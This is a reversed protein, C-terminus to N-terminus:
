AEGLKYKVRARLDREFHKWFIDETQVFIEDEIIIQAKDGILLLQETIHLRGPGNRKFVTKRGNFKSKAVFAGPFDQGRMSAGTASQKPTGKFWSAPMDNLGFWLTFGDGSSVRLKLSKMRKRLLNIVRLALEDKMRRAALTRLTAATRVLARHLAFKVQLETAALDMIIQDLGAADVEFHLM